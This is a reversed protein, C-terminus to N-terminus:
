PCYGSEQMLTLNERKQALRSELQRIQDLREPIANPDDDLGIVGNRKEEIWAEHDAIETEIAAIDSTEADCVGCAQPKATNECWDYWPQLVERSQARCAAIQQNLAPTFDREM